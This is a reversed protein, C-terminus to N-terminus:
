EYPSTNGGSSGDIADHCEQRRQRFDNIREFNWGSIWRDNGEPARANGLKISYNIQCESGHHQWQICTTDEDCLAKCKDPSHPSALESDTLADWKRGRFDRERFERDAGPKYTIDKSLNEWDERLPQLNTKVFYNFVDKWVM